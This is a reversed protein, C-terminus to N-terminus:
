APTVAVEAHVCPTAKCWVCQVPAPEDVTEARACAHWLDQLPLLDPREDCARDLVAKLRLHQEPTLKIVMKKM